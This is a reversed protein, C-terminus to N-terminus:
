REDVWGAAVGRRGGVEGGTTDGHQRGAPFTEPYKGQPPQPDWSESLGSASSAGPKSMSRNGVPRWSKMKGMALLDAVIRVLEGPGIGQDANIKKRPVSLLCDISSQM